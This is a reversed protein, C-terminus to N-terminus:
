RLFYPVKNTLAWNEAYSGSYVGLTVNSGSFANLAIMSTERPINIVIPTKIGSYAFPGIKTKDDPVFIEGNEIDAPSYMWAKEVDKDSLTKSYTLPKYVDKKCLARVRDTRISNDAYKSIQRIREKEIFVSLPYADTVNNNAFHDDVHKDM